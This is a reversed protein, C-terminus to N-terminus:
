SKLALIVEGLQEEVFKNDPNIKLLETKLEKEFDGVREGFLSKTAFSSTFLRALVEDVNKEIKPFFYDFKELRKFGAEKLYSDFSKKSDEFKGNVTRREPGLYKKIVEIIKKQWATPAYNWISKGGLILVAGKDSLIKFSLALIKEKDLWHLSQAFSICDFKGFSEDLDEARKVEWGIKIIGLLEARKKAEAIMEPSSDIAVVKTFYKALPFTLRGDGCGIDLLRGSGDLKLKAAITEIIEQPYEGRHKSYDKAAGQFIEM